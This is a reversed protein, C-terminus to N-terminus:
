AKNLKLLVYLTVYSTTLISGWYAIDATTWAFGRDWDGLVYKTLLSAITPIIYPSPLESRNGVYYLAATIVAAFGITTFIM